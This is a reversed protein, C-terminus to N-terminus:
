VSLYKEVNLRILFNHKQQERYDTVALLKQQTDQTSKFPM